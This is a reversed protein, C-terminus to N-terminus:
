FIYGFRSGLIVEESVHTGILNFINHYASEDEGADLLEKMKEIFELSVVDLADDHILM